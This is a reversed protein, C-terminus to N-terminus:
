AVEMNKASWLFFSLGQVGAVYGVVDSDSFCLLFADM